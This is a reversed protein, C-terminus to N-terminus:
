EVRLSLNRVHKQEDEEAKRLGATGTEATLNM